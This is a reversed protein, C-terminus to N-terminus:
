PSGASLNIEAFITAALRRTADRDPKPIEIILVRDLLPKTMHSLDNRNAAM